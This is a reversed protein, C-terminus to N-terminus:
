EQAPRHPLRVPAELTYITIATGAVQEVRAGAGRPDAKFRLWAPDQAFRPDAESRPSSVIVNIGHKTIFENFGTRMETTPVQISGARQYTAYGGDPDLIVLPGPLESRRLANITALVPREPKGFPRGSYLVLIAAASAALMWPARDTGRTGVPFIRALAPLMCLIIPFILYHQRPHIIVAAILAPLSLVLVMAYTGRHPAGPERTTYLSWGLALCLAILLVSAVRDMRAGAPLMMRGIAPVLQRLNQGIHWLIRDPATTLATTLSTSSGLDAAAIAEWGTWPDMDGSGTAVKNLAYHQGFAVTSRGHGFPSGLWLVLVLALLGPVWAWRKAPPDGGRVRRKADHIWLGILGFISLAFEPRIYTAVIAACSVIAWGRDRSRSVSRFLLGLLLIILAFVSVRPWNLINLTSLLIFLGALFAASISTGLARLVLFFLFPLLAITFGLNLFYRDVPDALVFQLARYWLSYLPAMDADPMGETDIMAGRHLYATEDYLGIDLRQTAYVAVLVCLLGFLLTVLRTRRAHTPANPHPSAM